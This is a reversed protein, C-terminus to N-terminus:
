FRIMLTLRIRGWRFVLLLTFRRMAEEEEKDAPGM